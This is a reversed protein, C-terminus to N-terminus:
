HSTPTAAHAALVAGWAGAWIGLEAPVIPPLQHFTANQATKRVVPDLIWTRSEALGGGIVILGPDILAVIGLLSHSLTTTVEDLLTIAAPDGASAAEVVARAGEASTEVVARAGQTGAEVVAQAGEANAEVVAHADETGTRAAAPASEARSSSDPGPGPATADLSPATTPPSTTTPPSPRAARSESWRTALQTGGIASELCGRQGCSCLRGQGSAMHGVEGAAGHAGRRLEGDVIHAGAIGTGLALVFLDDSERGAGLAAEAAAAANGDHVAVAPIGLAASLEHAPNLGTLWPVNTSALVTGTTEDLLGPVTTGLAVPRDPGLFVRISAALAPLSRPTVIRHSRVLAFGDGDVRALLLKSSTGGYDIGLLTRGAVPDPGASSRTTRQHGAHPPAPLDHTGPASHGLPTM